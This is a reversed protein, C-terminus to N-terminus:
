PVTLTVEGQALCLGKLNCSNVRVKVELPGTDGAARQVNARIVVQDTYIKYNGLVKDEKVKGEPYEVKVAAPKVKGGVTVETRNDAFDENGVPNAYIYWGKNIDITVTVVQRGQDDPKTAKATAKIESTSDIKARGGGWADGTLALLAAVCALTLGAALVRGPRNRVHQVM